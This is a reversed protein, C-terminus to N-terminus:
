VMIVTLIPKSLWKRQTLPKLNLLVEEFLWKEQVDEAKQSESAANVAAVHRECAHTTKNPEALDFMHMEDASDSQTVYCNSQM